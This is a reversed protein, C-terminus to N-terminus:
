LSRKMCVYMCVCVCVCVCMYIYIYIHTHTHTYISHGFQLTLIVLLQDLGKLDNFCILFSGSWVIGGLVLPLGM